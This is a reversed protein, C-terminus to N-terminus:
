ESMYLPRPGSPGHCRSLSCNVVASSFMTHRLRAHSQSLLDIKGPHCNLCRQNGSGLIGKMVTHSGTIAGDVSGEQNRAGHCSLCDPNYAHSGPDHVGILSLDVYQAPKAAPVLDKHPCDETFSGLYAVLDQLDQDTLQPKAGGFHASGADRLAVDLEEFTADRINPGINGCAESGHCYACTSPIDYLKAGRQVPGTPVNPGPANPEPCTTNPDPCTTNPDPCPEQPFCGGVNACLGAVVIGFLAILVYKM